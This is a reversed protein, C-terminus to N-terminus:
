QDGQGSTMLVCAVLFLDEVPQKAFETLEPFRRNPVLQQLAAEEDGASYLALADRLRKNGKLSPKVLQMLATDRAMGDMLFLRYVSAEIGFLRAIGLLCRRRTTVSVCTVAEGLILGIDSKSGIAGLAYAVESEAEDQYYSLSQRVYPLASELELEAVAEAAAIRVSPHPDFLADSIAQDADTAGLVRLAQLSSRRLDPDGAETASQILPTIARADGIRGLARASARRLMSRPSQLMRILPPVANTSGLNGLAEVTEEEVLDPHDQLQHILAEVAEPTALKALARAAERRIRPSPDHLAKVVESGGLTFGHHALDAIAQQRTEVDSGKSLERMARMGRPTVRSLDRLAMAVKQAGEERVPILFFIALFRIGMTVLFVAKYANELPMRGEMMVLVQAGAMPAVFGVISQTTLSVSMYNARDEPRATALLINYQCLAVGAWTAGVLVHSPLLVLANYLNADPKCFLWMTPTLSLGFGVLLLVPKNGYKDALFGFFRACLVNGLAHMVGAWQIITYPLNLSKIAFAAFLNGAFAQGFIFIGLFVLVRRFNQDVFPRKLGGLAKGLSQDEVSERPTDKMRSFFFLSIMAFVLGLGFIITFGLQEHGNRKFYDLTVAGILGASAGFATAIANRRSFYFGRSAVPVMEALWENYIPAVLLTCAAAVSACLLLVTLKLSNAIPLFPLAVLPLYFLRWLLGGPFVFKKFSAVRRGWIGGPIQLLGLLAPIASVLQIWYDSGGLSTIFGAIFAGTVLSAFATAFAADINATRLNQLTELRNLTRAM